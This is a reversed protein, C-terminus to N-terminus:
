SQEGAPALTREAHEVLDNPGPSDGQELDGPFLGRRAADLFARVIEPDFQTGANRKIEELAKYHPLAKRYPRHSTMANYADVISFVRAGLPIEDGKLGRPYGSGDFREHHAYVVEAADQLFDIGRLIEYGLEAHRRMEQWETEDLPGPKALVADAVGIKGIDHLISAKEIQRLQEKRLGMQHAVISGIETARKAQGQTVNDRLDLAACLVAVISEYNTRVHQSRDNSQSQRRFLVRALRAVILVLAVYLAALAATVSVLVALAVIAAGVGVMLLAQLGLLWLPLTEGSVVRKATKRRKMSNKAM